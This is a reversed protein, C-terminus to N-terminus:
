EEWGGGGEYHELCAIGLSDDRHLAAEILKYLPETSDLQRGPDSMDIGDLAIGTIWLEDIYPRMIGVDPEAPAATYEVDAVGYAYCACGPLLALEDIFYLMEHKMM